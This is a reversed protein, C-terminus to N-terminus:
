IDFHKTNVFYPVVLLQLIYGPIALIIGSLAATATITIDSIFCSLILTAAIRLVRSVVQIILLKSFVNIKTKSLLGAFFGFCILEIIILPLMSATPMGSIAYSVIPSSVGAIVGVIANTKIALILVPLYMPLFMQGFKGGMGAFVGFAHFIQPLAVACLTAVSIALLYRLALNINKNISKEM